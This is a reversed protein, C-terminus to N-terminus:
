LYMLICTQSIVFMSINLFIVFPLYCFNIRVLILSSALQAQFHRMNLTEKKSIKLAQCDRKYLLWANVVALTITHWFIYMYWRRSKLPFKYKATFSDLLDVGGMYKNYTGVIYPREVEIYTKNAKDWRQIKQVPETGAFSSVLTVARNDYWKVASINHKVEVRYDFTGRGKKKLSKDDELNCNPLRVQRATGVYHIGHDLLKEILPVSTFYNDAYIKYNQGEPLTSALKMVVDGSLGLESKARIGNNSGQYVDFDCMM